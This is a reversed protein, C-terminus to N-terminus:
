RRGATPGEPAKYDRQAVTKKPTRGLGRGSRKKRTVIYALSARFETHEPSKMYQTIICKGTFNSQNDLSNISPLM